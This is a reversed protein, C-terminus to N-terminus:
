LSLTFIQWASSVTGPSGQSGVTLGNMEWVYVEGSSNQWLIDANGDGNYDGVGKISWASSVTGPTGQNAITTGSMLWIYVEGSTSNRWLIDSTGSGDFDGVGAITWGSSPSVTGPTGQSRISIGNMLWIYVEGTTTNQWLIDAKGDGNFDGVGLISWGSSPSVIGLDGQSAITTGNMLWIYVEGTTSNRWLIDAKGDGNFDGVGQIVWASSPTVNGAIGQSTITTGNMLWLYVEETSSNRWLVDAMGDGNFDGIGQIAWASSPSGPSGQSLISAGNMLWEYVEESSSNRWLIDSRCDGNFDGSVAFSAPNPNPNPNATRCPGPAPQLCTGFCESSLNYTGTNIDSCDGVLVTYTGTSPVTLSPNLQAVKGGCNGYGNNGFASAVETPDYIRIKPSLSGTTSTITFTVTDNATGSFTYTTSQSAAVVIGAQTQGWLIPSTGVAANIRQSYASYTGQYLDSCDGILVTYAGTSPFTVTNLELTSGGCNGYGNNGFASTLLSGNPNYVRIKPSFTGSTSETTAVAFYGTDNANATVTYAISQVASSIAGAVTEGFPFQIAGVPATLSQVFVAYNGSNTASCDSIEVYYTGTPNSSGSPSPPLTVQNMELTEGGCSGYGNNGFASAILKGDSTLLEIKPSLTGSTAAVTFDLVDGVADPFTYTNVQAAGGINGTTVQGFPLTTARGELCFIFFGCVFLVVQLRIMKM